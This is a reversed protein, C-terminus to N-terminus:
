LDQMKMRDVDRRRNRSNRAAKYIALLVATPINMLIFTYVAGWVAGPIPQGDVYVAMGMLSILSFLFTILPLILGLRKNEKKSLYIQLFISGIPVALLIVLFVARAFIDGTM